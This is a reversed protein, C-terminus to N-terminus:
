AGILHYADTRGGYAFSVLAASNATTGSTGGAVYGTAANCFLGGDYTIASATTVGTSSLGAGYYANRPRILGTQIEANTYSSTSATGESPPNNLGTILVNGLYGSGASTVTYATTTFLCLATATAASGGGGSFAITPVTTVSSGSATVLIATISQAGTLTCTCVGGTGNADRPDRLVYVNPTNTYGAGQNTVTVSSIAGSTVACYASAPVGNGLPPADFTIGPLFINSYSSGGNAVTISTNVAGGVIPLYTASTSANDTVAPASTFGSGSNVVLAGIVQGTLNAVRWNVGDSQVFISADGGDGYSEWTNTIQNLKQVISYKGARVYWPGAPILQVTGAALTYFNSPQGRLTSNIGPGGYTLGM